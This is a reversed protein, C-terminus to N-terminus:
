RRLKLLARYAPGAVAPILYMPFQYAALMLYVDKSALPGLVAILIALNRNGMVLAATLGERGTLRWLPAAGWFVVAGVAQLGFNTLFVAAVSTLVHGPDAFFEARLGDMVGIAFVLLMLVAIGGLATGHRRIRDDGALWRLAAAAAFAAGIFVALRLMLPGLGINLKIGLLALAVPPQVLPQLIFGAVMVVLALPADLGLLLAFATVSILPPSSAILVLPGRLFEPTGILRIAAEMVFPAGVMAGALILLPRTPRRLRWLVESWELRLITALFLVFVSAGLFPKCLAALDQSVLGVFVGVALLVASRREMWEFARIVM